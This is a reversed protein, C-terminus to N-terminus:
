SVGEGSGGRETAAANGLQRTAGLLLGLVDTKRRQKALRLLNDLVGMERCLRAMEEAILASASWSDWSGAHREDDDEEENDQGHGHGHGHGATARATFNKSALKLIHSLDRESSVAPDALLLLRVLDRHSNRAAYKLATHNAHDRAEPRAGRELLITATKHFGEGAAIMLPTVGNNDAKELSRLLRIWRTPSNFLADIVRATDEDTPSSASGPGCDQESFAAMDSSSSHGRSRVAFFLVSRSKDTVTDLNAGYELLLKVTEANRQYAAYHLPTMGGRAACNPNAGGELLARASDLDNHAVANHLPSHDLSGSPTTPARGLGHVSNTNGFSNVGLLAHGMPPSHHSPFVPLLRDSGREVSHAMHQPQQWGFIWPPTGDTSLQYGSTSWTSPSFTPDMNIRSFDHSIDLMPRPSFADVIFPAALGPHTPPQPEPYPDDSLWPM